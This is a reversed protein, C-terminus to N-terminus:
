LLRLYEKKLEERSNDCLRSQPIVSDPLVEIKYGFGSILELISETNVLGNASKIRLIHDCDDLDFNARYNRFKLEIQNVLFDAIPKASVNTSFVEVM